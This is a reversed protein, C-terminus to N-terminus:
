TPASNGWGYEELWGFSDEPRGGSPRYELGVYGQYGKRGLYASCSGTISRM